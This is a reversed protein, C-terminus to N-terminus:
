LTARRRVRRWTFGGEDGADSAGLWALNNGLVSRVRDQEQPTTVTALHGRVGSDNTRAAAAALAEEWTFSGLVFEYSNNGGQSTAGQGGAGGIAGTDIQVGGAGANADLSVSVNGGTAIGGAGGNGFSATGGNGGRATAQVELNSVTTGAGFSITAGGATAAGGAGGANAPGAGQQSNGGAGGTARTLVTVQDLSNSGALAIQATGGRGAGGSTAPGYGTETPGSNLGVGGIGETSV